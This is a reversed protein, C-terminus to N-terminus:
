RFALFILGCRFWFLGSVGFWGAIEWSNCFGAASSILVFHMLVKFCSVLVCFVIVRMFLHVTMMWWCCHSLCFSYSLSLRCLMVSYLVCYGCVYVRYFWFQLLLGISYRICCFGRLTLFRFGQSLLSPTFGSLRLLSFLILSFYFQTTPLRFSYPPHRTQFSIPSNPNSISSCSYKPYHSLFLSLLHHHYLLPLSIIKTNVM